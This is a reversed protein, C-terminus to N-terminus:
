DPVSGVGHRRGEHGQEVYRLAVQLGQGDRGLHATDRGTAKFQAARRQRCGSPLVVVIKVREVGVAWCACCVPQFWEMCVELDTREALVPTLLEVLTTRTEADLHPIAIGRVSLEHIPHDLVVATIWTAQM